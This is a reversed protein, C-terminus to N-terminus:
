IVVAGDVGNHNMEVIWREALYEASEPVDWGLLSGVETTKKQEALSRYFAPSLFHVHADTVDVEGWPTLIM